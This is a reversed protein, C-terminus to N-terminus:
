SPAVRRGGDFWIRQEQEVAPSSFSCERGIESIEVRDARVEGSAIANMEFMPQALSRVVVPQHGPRRGLEAEGLGGAWAGGEHRM